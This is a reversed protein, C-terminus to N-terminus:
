GGVWPGRRLEELRSNKCSNEFYDRCMMWKAITLQWDVVVVVKKAYIDYWGVYQVEIAGDYRTTFTLSKFQVTAGRESKWIVSLFKRGYSVTLFWNETQICVVTRDIPGYLYSWHYNIIIWQILWPSIMTVILKLEIKMATPLMEFRRQKVRQNIKQKYCIIHLCRRILFDYKGTCNITCM